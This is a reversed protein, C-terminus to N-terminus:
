IYRFMFLSAFAIIYQKRFMLVDGWADQMTAGTQLSREKSAIENM